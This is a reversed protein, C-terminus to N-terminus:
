GAPDTPFDELIEPQVARQKRTMSAHEKVAPSSYAQHIMRAHRPSIPLAAMSTGLRTLARTDPDLAALAVLCREAAALAGPEVSTPLPFNEM